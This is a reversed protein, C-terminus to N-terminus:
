GGFHILTSIFQRPTEARMLTDAAEPKRLLQSLAALTRLHATEKRMLPLFFIYTDSGDYSGFPTGQPCLGALMPPLNEPYERVNRIHPFATRNGAATSAMAERAELKLLLEDASAIIGQDLLPQILQALVERKSGPTVSLNMYAEKVLRSVPVIGSDTQMLEILQDEETQNMMKTSLWSDIASRRFRWQGGVRFCPIEHKQIMRSVTKEAIKLYRAVEQLTMIDSNDKNDKHEKM